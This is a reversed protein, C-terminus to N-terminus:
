NVDVPFYIFDKIAEWNTTMNNQKVLGYEDAYKIKKNLFNDKKTSYPKFFYDIKKQVHEAPVPNYDLLKDTKDKHKYM